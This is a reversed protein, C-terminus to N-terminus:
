GGWGGVPTRNFEKKEERQTAVKKKQSKLGPKPTTEYQKSKKKYGM